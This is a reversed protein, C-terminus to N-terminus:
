LIISIKIHKSNLTQNFVYIIIHLFTSYYKKGQLARSLIYEEEIIECLVQYSYYLSQLSTLNNSAKIGHYYANDLRKDMKLGEKLLM